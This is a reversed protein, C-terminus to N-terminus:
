RVTGLSKFSGASHSPGCMVSGSSGSGTKNRSGDLQLVTHLDSAERFRLNRM